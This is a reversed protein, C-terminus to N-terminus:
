CRAHIVVGNWAPTVLTEEDVWSTEGSEEDFHEHAPIVDTKEERHSTEVRDIAYEQEGGFVGFRSTRMIIASDRNLGAIADQLEGVTFTPDGPYFPSGQMKAPM